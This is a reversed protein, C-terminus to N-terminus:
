LRSGIDGKNGTSGRYYTNMIERLDDQFVIGVILVTLAHIFRIVQEKQALTLPPDEDDIM